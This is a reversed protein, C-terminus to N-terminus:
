SFNFRILIIGFIITSTVYYLINIRRQIETQHNPEINVIIFESQPKRCLPCEQKIKMCEVFCNNHFKKNCCKTIFLTSEKDFTELCIPCEESM